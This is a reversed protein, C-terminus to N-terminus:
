AKSAIWGMRRADALTDIDTKIQLVKFNLKLELIQARTQQFVEPTSWSIGEFLKPYFSKCGILYYGGDTAPGIVVDVFRLSEFATTISNTDLEACDCGILVVQDHHFLTANIANSMRMGLDNGTQIRQQYTSTKWLDDKPIVDSYYIDKEVPIDVTVDFTHQLLRLYLDLAKVDGVEAALRTKVKGLVPNRIFIILASKLDLISFQAYLIM